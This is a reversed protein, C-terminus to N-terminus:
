LPYPTSMGLSRLTHTHTHAHMWGYANAHAYEHMHTNTRTHVNMRTHAHKKTPKRTRACMEHQQSPTLNQPPKLTVHQKFWDQEGKLSRLDELESYTQLCLLTKRIYSLDLHHRHSIHTEVATHTHTHISTMNTTAHTYMKSHTWIVSHTNLWMNSHTHTHRCTYMRTQLTFQSKIYM